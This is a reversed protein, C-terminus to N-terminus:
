SSGMLEVFKTAMTVYSAREAAEHGEEGKDGHIRGQASAAWEAAQAVAWKFDGNTVRWWAARAAAMAQDKDQKDRPFYVNRSGAITASGEIERWRHDPITKGALEDLFFRGVHEAYSGESNSLRAVGHEPDLMLWALFRKILLDPDIPPRRAHRFQEAWYPAVSEPVNKLFSSELEALSEAGAVDGTAEYWTFTAHEDAVLTEPQATLNDPAENAPTARSAPQDLEGDPPLLGLLQKALLLLATDALGWFDQEQAISSDIHAGFQQIVEEPLEVNANINTQWTHKLWATARARHLRKHWEEWEEITIIRQGAALKGLPAGLPQYLNDLLKNVQYRDVTQQLGNLSKRVGEIGCVFQFQQKGRDVSFGTRECFIQYLIELEKGFDSLPKEPEGKKKPM